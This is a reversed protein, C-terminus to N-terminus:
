TMMKALALCNEKQCLDRIAAQTYVVNLMHSPRNRLRCTQCTLFTKVETGFSQNNYQFGYRVTACVSLFSMLSTDLATSLIM